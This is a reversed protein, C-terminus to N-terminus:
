QSSLPWWCTAREQQVVTDGQKHRHHAPLAGKWTQGGDLCGEWGGGRLVVQTSDEGEESDNGGAHSCAPSDGIKGSVCDRLPIIWVRRKGRRM